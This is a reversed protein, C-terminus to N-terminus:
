EWNAPWKQQQKSTLHCSIFLTKKTKEENREEEEKETNKRL